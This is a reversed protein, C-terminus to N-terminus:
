HPGFISRTWSFIQHTAEPFQASLVGLLPLLIYVLIRSVFDRSWSVQGPVTESLASLITEREMQVFVVLTAGVATVIV